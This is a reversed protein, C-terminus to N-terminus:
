TEAEHRKITAIVKYTVPLLLAEVAVKYVYGVATYNILTGLPVMGAWAITCFVVTDALEGVITSGLLRVWLRGTGFRAKIRVLVWANLFQGVLYGALSAIVIRPVFGLVAHWGDQNDWGPAPPAIDVVWFILSATLAVAFGTVIARRARAFGYVEALVDGFIYTLPFLIAGGDFILPLLPGGGPSWDAGIAILKTAGVNSILLFSCFLAM